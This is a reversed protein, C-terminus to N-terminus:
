KGLPYEEMPGWGAEVFQSLTRQTVGYTIFDVPAMGDPEYGRVFEPISQLRRIVAPDVPENIREAWPEEVKAILAQIKPHISFVMHAGSLDVAHYAGRMGAPMIVAESKMDKFLSYARKAVATGAQIIDSEQVPARRDMAVDRLYDDLRGVMLVAFCKGPTVGARRARALGKAYRDAIAMVQPVTFSATATVTIGQAACEELADLGAATVPLKVAINPAWRNLRKAMVLMAEANGPIKPNVQACVYGQGGSTREYVPLMMAAITSTIKQLIAEAKEAGKLDRPVDAIVPAWIDPRAFLSLKILLPNTTVGVAGNGISTRLEDPDASDHWWATATKESLWKLYQIDNMMKAV